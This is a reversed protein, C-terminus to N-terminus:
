ILLGRATLDIWCLMKRKLYTSSYNITCVGNSIRPANINRREIRIAQTFHEKGLFINNRWYKTATEEDMHPYMTITARIRPKEADCFKILFAIFLRILKPDSNSVRFGNKSIKDGEGWYLCIGAIFLPNKCNRDYELKAEAEARKYLADLGERRKQNHKKLNEVSALNRQSINKSKLASLDSAQSFWLSLTSKSVGLKESIAGYSLGSRYLELAKDKDHRM